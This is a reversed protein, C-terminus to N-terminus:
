QQRLVERLFGGVDSAWHRRKNASTFPVTADQHLHGVIALSTAVHPFCSLPTRVDWWFANEVDSLM